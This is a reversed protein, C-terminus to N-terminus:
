HLFRWIEEEHGRWKLMEDWDTGDITTCLWSFVNVFKKCPCMGAICKMENRRVDITVLLRTYRPGQINCPLYKHILHAIVSPHFWKLHVKGRGFTPFYLYRTMQLCLSLMQFSRQMSRSRTFTISWYDWTIRRLQLIPEDHQASTRTPSCPTPQM